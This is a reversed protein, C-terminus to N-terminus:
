KLFLMKGQLRRGGSEVEYLYMGSPVVKGSSNVGNWTIDYTGSNIQKNMLTNVKEGLLSYVSVKVNATRDNSFRIKTVPNFPNPYNGKIEFKDAVIGEDITSLTGTYAWHSDVYQTWRAPVCNPTLTAWIRGGYGFTGNPMGTVPDFVPLMNGDADLSDGASEGDIDDNDWWTWYEAELDSWSDNVTVSDGYWDLFSGPDTMEMATLGGLVVPMVLGLAEKTASLQDMGAMMYATAYSTISDALAATAATVYPIQTGPVLITGLEDTDLDFQYLVHDMIQSAIGAADTVGSALATKAGAEIAKITMLTNWTAYYGTFKLGEDGSFPLGDGGGLLDGTPDFIYGSASNIQGVPGGTDTDIVPEGTADLQGPGNLMYAMLPGTESPNMPYYITQGAADNPYPYPWTVVGAALAAMAPITVSDTPLSAIGVIGNMLGLEAEAENFFQDGTSVIGINAAKGDHAEWGLHMGVPTGDDSYTTKMYGWNPMATEQGEPTMGYDVGEVMTAMNPAEFTAFVGSRTIEWGTLITTPNSTVIAGEPGYGGDNWDGDDSVAPIVSSTVCDVTQTTPYTSGERFQYTGNTGDFDVNMSIQAFQLAAASPLSVEQVRITDGISFVPLEYEFGIDYNYGTPGSFGITLGYSSLNQDYETVYTVGDVVQNTDRAEMVYLVNLSDITYNGDVVQADIINSFLNISLVLILLKKM